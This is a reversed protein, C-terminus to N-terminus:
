RSAYERTIELVQVKYAGYWKSKGLEQAQLHEANQKWQQIQDRNNWYSISIERNGETVSVFELCGYEDIALERLRVATETYQQDIENLEAIFIVAYM